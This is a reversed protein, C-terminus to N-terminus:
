IQVKLQKIRNFFYIKHGMELFLFNNQFIFFSSSETKYKKQYFFLWKIFHFLFLLNRIELDNKYQPPLM